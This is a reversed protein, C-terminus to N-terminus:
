QGGGPTRMVRAAAARGPAQSNLNHCFVNAAGENQTRDRARDPKPVARPRYGAKRHPRLSRLAVSHLLM